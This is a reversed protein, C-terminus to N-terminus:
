VIELPEVVGKDPPDEIVNCPVAVGGFNVRLSTAFIPLTAVPLTTSSAVGRNHPIGNFYIEHTSLIELFM